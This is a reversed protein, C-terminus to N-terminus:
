EEQEEILIQVVEVELTVESLELLWKEWVELGIVVKLLELM